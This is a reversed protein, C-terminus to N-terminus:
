ETFVITVGFMIECRLTYASKCIRSKVRRLMCRLRINCLIVAHVITIQIATKICDATIIYQVALLHRKLLKSIALNILNPFSYYYIGM